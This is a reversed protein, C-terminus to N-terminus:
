RFFCLFLSLVRKVLLFFVFTCPSKTMNISGVMTAGIAVFCVQGFDSTEITTTLRKNGCFVDFPKNVAIPNVTYYGGSINVFEQLIGTVPSHFRHYDQPALRAIVISGGHFMGALAEDQLLNDLTFKKGKIWLQTAKEISPYVSLRCDAPSVVIRDDGPKSIPRIGEKM